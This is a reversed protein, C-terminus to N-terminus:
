VSLEQNLDPINSRLVKGMDIPVMGEGFCKVTVLTTLLEDKGQYSYGQGYLRFALHQEDTLYADVGNKM